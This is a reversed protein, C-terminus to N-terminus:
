LQRCAALVPKDLTTVPLPPLPFKFSHKAQGASNKLSQPLCLFCSCTEKKTTPSLAPNANPRASVFTCAEKQDIQVGSTDQATDDLPFLQTTKFNGSNMFPFCLVIPTRKICTM